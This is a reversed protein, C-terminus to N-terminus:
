PILKEKLLADQYLRYFSYYTDTQKGNETTLEVRFIFQGNPNTRGGLIKPEGIIEPHNPLQDTTTQTIVQTIRDIDADFPLPLDIQTTMYGKSLNGVTTINRNPIYHVTGDAGKLQTTRLGVNTVTGSITGIQITDGVDFQQEFLIFFGNILDSLFGQAGLGVAIGAIGAGALLSSIPLGLITLIWYLLFFSITYDMMNESLKILTEQRGKSQGTFHVSKVITKRFLYHALRKAFVYAILLAGIELLKTTLSLAIQEFNLSNWYHLIFSM